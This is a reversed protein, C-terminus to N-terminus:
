SDNLSMFQQWQARSLYPQSGIKTRTDFFGVAESAASQITRNKLTSLVNVKQQFDFDRAAGYMDSSYYM